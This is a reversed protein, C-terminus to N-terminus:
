GHAEDIDEIGGRKDNQKSPQNQAADDVHLMRATWEDVLIRGRAWRSVTRRDPLRVWDGRHYHVLSAKPDEDAPAGTDIADGNAVRSLPSGGDGLSALMRQPTRATSKTVSFHLTVRM